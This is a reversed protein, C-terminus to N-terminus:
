PYHCYLSLLLRILRKQWPSCPNTGNELHARRPKKCGWLVSFFAFTASSLYDENVYWRDLNGFGFSVNISNRGRERIFLFGVIDVSAGDIATWFFSFNFIGQDEARSSKFVCWTWVTLNKILFCHESVLAMQTLTTTRKIGNWCFFDGFFSERKETHSFGPSFQLMIFESEDGTM